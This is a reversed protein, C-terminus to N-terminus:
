IAFHWVQSSRRSIQDGSLVVPHNSLWIIRLQFKWKTKVWSLPPPTVDVRGVTSLLMLVMLVLLDALPKFVLIEPFHWKQFYNSYIFTIWNFDLLHIINHLLRLKEHGSKQYSWNLDSFIKCLFGYFRHLEPWHLYLFSQGPLCRHTRFLYVIVQPSLCVTIPNTIMPPRMLQITVAFFISKSPM